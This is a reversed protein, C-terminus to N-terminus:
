SEYMQFLVSVFFFLNLLFCVMCHFLQKDWNEASYMQAVTLGPQVSGGCCYIQLETPLHFEDLCNNWRNDPGGTWNPRKVLAVVKIGVDDCHKM